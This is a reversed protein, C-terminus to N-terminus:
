ELLTRTGGPGRQRQESSGRARGSAAATASTSSLKISGGKGKKPATAKLLKKCEDHFDKSMEMKIERLYNMMTYQGSRLQELLEM